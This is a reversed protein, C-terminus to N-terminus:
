VLLVEGFNLFVGDHAVFGELANGWFLVGQGDRLVRLTADLLWEVTTLTNCGQGPPLCVDPNLKNHNSRKLLGAGPM